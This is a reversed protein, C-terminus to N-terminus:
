AAVKEARQIYEIAKFPLLSGVKEALNHVTIQSFANMDSCDYFMEKWIEVPAPVLFKDLKGYVRLNEYITGCFGKEFAAKVEELTKGEAAYDIELGQAFWSGAEQILIVKLNLIGVVHNDGLKVHFAAAPQMANENNKTNSM